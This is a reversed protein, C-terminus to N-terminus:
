FFNDGKRIWNNVFFILKKCFDIMIILINNLGIMCKKLSELLFLTLDKQGFSFCEVHFGDDLLRFFLGSISNLVKM